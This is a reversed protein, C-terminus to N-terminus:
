RCRAGTSPATQVRDPMVTGEAGPVVFTQGLESGVVLVPTADGVPDLVCGRGADLGIVASPLVVHVLAPERLVWGSTVQRTGDADPTAEAFASSALLAALGEPDQVTGDGDVPVPTGDVVLAREGPLADAPLAVVTASHVATLSVLVDGATVLDGLRVQCGGVEVDPAPLWLVGAAPVTWGDPVAAGASGAVDRYARVTARTVTDSSPARQGLRTLEANMAAADAGRDGVSLDRWPPVSTALALLGQGDIGFVSQGSVIREGPSCASVSVRGDVPSALEPGQQETVSVTVSREDDHAREVVPLEALDHGQAVADPVPPRTLWAGAAVGGALAVVLALGTISM